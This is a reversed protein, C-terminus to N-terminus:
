NIYFDNSEIYNKKREIMEDIREIYGKVDKIGDIRTASLRDKTMMKTSTGAGIAIINQKDGMMLINYVGELGPKSYGVNELNGAMNKQRYLYYPAMGMKRAYDDALAMLESNNEM